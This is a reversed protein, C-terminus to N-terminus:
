GWSFQGKKMHKRTVYTATIGKRIAITANLKVHLATKSEIPYVVVGAVHISALEKAPSTYKSSRPSGTLLSTAEKSLADPPIALTHQSYRYAVSTNCLLILPRMNAFPILACKLRIDKGLGMLKRKCEVNTCGHILKDPILFNSNAPFQAQKHFELIRSYFITQERRTDVQCQLLRGKGSLFPQHAYSMRRFM